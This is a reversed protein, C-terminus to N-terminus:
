DDEAAGGRDVPAREPTRAAPVTSDDDPNQTATFVTADHSSRLPIQAIAVGGGALALGAAVAAAVQRLRRRPPRYPALGDPVTGPPPAIPHIDDHM